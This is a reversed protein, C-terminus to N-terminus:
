CLNDATGFIGQECVMHGLLRQLAPGFQTVYKYDCDEVVLGFVFNIWQVIKEHDDGLDSYLPLQILVRMTTM